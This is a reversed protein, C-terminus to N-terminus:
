GYGLRSPLFLKWKAGVKMKQLAETWGPIVGNVYFVVPKGDQYTNIFETGDILSGIYHTKVKDAPGPRAGDGEKMVIYQLGSELNVVGPKNRNEALFAEGREMNDAARSSISERKRARADEQYASMIEQIEGPSFLHRDEQMGDRIGQFLPLIEIDMERERLNKGIDHGMIYSIKSRETDLDDKKVSKQGCSVALCSCLFLMGSQRMLRNM